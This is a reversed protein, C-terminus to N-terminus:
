WNGSSRESPAKKRDNRDEVFKAAAEREQEIWYEPTGSLPIVGMESSAWAQCAKWAYLAADGLDSHQILVKQDGPRTRRSLTVWERALPSDPNALLRGSLFDSNMLAINGLKNGRKDAAELPLGLRNQLETVIGRGYGGTDAVSSCFGGYKAELERYKTAIEDISMHSRAYTEIAFMNKCTMAFAFVVFANADREGLDLGLAYLWEHQQGSPGIPLGHPGESDFAYSNRGKEYLYVRETDDTCWQALIERRFKPSEKSLGFSKFYRSWILHADREAVPLFTNDEVKGVVRHWDQYEPDDQTASTVRYFVGDLINGPSGQLILTGGYDRLAPVVAEVVLEEFHPGFDKCEDLIALSIGSQDGRLASASDKDHAGFLLIDTGNPTTIRKDTEHFNLGLNLARDLQQFPRWFLRRAHSRSDPVIYFITSGPFKKDHVLVEFLGNTTKGWRRCTLLAKFQKESRLFEFQTPHTRQKFWDWEEPTLEHKDKAFLQQANKKRLEAARKLIAEAAGPAKLDLRRSM